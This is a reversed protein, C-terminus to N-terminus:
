RRELLAYGDHGRVLVRLGHAEATAELAEPGSTWALVLRLGSAGTVLVTPAFAYQAYLRHTLSEGGTTPPALFGVRSEGRAAAVLPAFNADIRSRPRHDTRFVHLADRAVLAALVGALVVPLSRPLTV